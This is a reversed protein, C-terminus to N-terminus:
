LRMGIGLISGPKLNNGAEDELEIIRVATDSVKILVSGDMYKNIVAGPIGESCAIEEAQEMNLITYEKGKFYMRVGTGKPKVGFVRYLGSIYAAPRNWDHIDGDAKRLRCNYVIGNEEQLIGQIEGSLIGEFVGELKDCLLNKIRERGLIYTENRELEIDIIKYIEGADLGERVRHITYGIHKEGNLMAWCNANFGRWKPLIGAHINVFLYKEILESKLIKTYGCLFIMDPNIRIIDDLQIEPVDAEKLNLKTEEIDDQPLTYDIICGVLRIKRFELINEFIRPNYGGMYVLKYM